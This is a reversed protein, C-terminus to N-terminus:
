EALTLLEEHPVATAAGVLGRSTFPRWPNGRGDTVFAGSEEALLAGAALHVPDAKERLASFYRVGAVAGSALYALGLTTGLKHVFWQAPQVANRM